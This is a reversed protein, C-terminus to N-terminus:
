EEKYEFLRSQGLLKRGLMLKLAAVTKKSVAEANVRGVPCDKCLELNWRFVGCLREFAKQMRKLKRSPSAQWLRKKLNEAEQSGPCTILEPILKAQWLDASGAINVKVSRRKSSSEYKKGM